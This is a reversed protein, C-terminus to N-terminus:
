HAIMNTHFVLFCAASKLAYHCSKLWNLSHLRSVFFLFFWQRNSDPMKQTVRYNSGIQPYTSSICLTERLGKASSQPLLVGSFWFVSGIPINIQTKWFVFVSMAWPYISFSFRMKRPTQGVASLNRKHSFNKLGEKSFLFRCTKLTSPYNIQLTINTEPTYFLSETTYNSLWTQSKQLGMSQLRGPKEAWLIRWALISSHTAMEKERPDERGRSQVQTEKMLLHIRQWQSPM